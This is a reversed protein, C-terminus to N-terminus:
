IAPRTVLFGKIVIMNGSSPYSFGKLGDVQRYEM